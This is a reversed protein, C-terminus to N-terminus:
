SSSIRAGTRGHMQLIMSPKDTHDQFARLPRPFRLVVSKEGTENLSLYISVRIEKFILLQQL